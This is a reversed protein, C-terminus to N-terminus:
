VVAVANNRKPTHTHTHNLVIEKSEERVCRIESLATCLVFSVLLCVWFGGNSPLAGGNVCCVLAHILHYTGTFDACKRSREVAFSVVFGMAVACLIVALTVTCDYGPWMHYKSPLFLLLVSAEDSFIGLLFLLIGVIVYFASQIVVIQTVILRPNFAEQGYFRGESSM